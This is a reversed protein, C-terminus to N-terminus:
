PREPPGELWVAPDVAVGGVTLEWHLHPGTSQGTSGVRGLQQGAALEDGVEVEIASLHSYSSSVGWGHDVIVTLGHIPQEAALNVQGAAMAGVPAGLVNAIDLGLHHQRAGDSYSRYRGFPSSVWGASPRQIETLVPAVRTQGTAAARDARMAQLAATDERAAQQAATLAITGGRSWTQARAAVTGEQSRTNGLKDELHLTWPLAGGEVDVPLALLAQWRGQDDALLPWRRGALELQADGLAEDAEIHLWAAAGARLGDEPFHVAATPGQADVEVAGTRTAANALWSADVARLELTHPGHDLAPEWDFHGDEALSLETWSGEDVRAELRALGPRGDVVTGRLVLGPGTRAPLEDPEVALQPPHLDIRGTLLVGTAALLGVTLIQYPLARRREAGM